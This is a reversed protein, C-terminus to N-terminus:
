ADSAYINVASFDAPEILCDRDLVVSKYRKAQAAVYQQHRLRGVRRLVPYDRVIHVHPFRSSEVLASRLPLPPGAAKEGVEFEYPQGVTESPAPARTGASRDMVGDM